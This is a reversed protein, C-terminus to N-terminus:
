PRASNPPSLRCSSTGAISLAHLFGLSYLLLPTTSSDKKRALQNKPPVFVDL